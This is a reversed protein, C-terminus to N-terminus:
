YYDEDAESGLTNGVAIRQGMWKWFENDGTTDPAKM